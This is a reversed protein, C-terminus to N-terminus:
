KKGMPIGTETWDPTSYFNISSGGKEVDWSM